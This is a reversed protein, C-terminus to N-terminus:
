RSNSPSSRSIRKSNNTATQQSLGNSSHQSARNSNSKKVVKPNTKKTNSPTSSDRKVSNSRVPRTRNVYTLNKSSRQVDTSVGNWNSRVPREEGYRNRENNNLSRKRTSLPKSTSYRSKFNESSSRNSNTYRQKGDIEVSKVGNRKSKLKKYQVSNLIKKLDEDKKRIRNMADSRTNSEKREKAYKLNVDYVSKVQEDGLNLEEQLKETQKRAEQEPTRSAISSGQANLLSVCSIALILSLANIKLFVKM